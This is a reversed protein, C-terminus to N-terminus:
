LCDILPESWSVLRLRNRGIGRRIVTGDLGLMVKVLHYDQNFIETDLINEVRTGYDYGAEYAARAAFCNGYCVQGGPLCGLYVDSCVTNIQLGGNIGVRIIQPNPIKLNECSSYHGFTKGILLRLHPYNEKFEIENENM